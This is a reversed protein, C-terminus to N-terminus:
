PTKSGEVKKRFTDYFHIALGAYSPSKVFEKEAAEVQQVFEEYSQDAFTIKPLMLSTSVFGAYENGTEPDIIPRETAGDQWQIAGALAFEADMALSSEDLNKDTYAAAGFQKWIAFVAEQMRVEDEATPEPPLEIGVHYNHGDDLIQTRFGNIRSLYSFDEAQGKLAEEFVDHPIGVPFWVETPQYTFTEVGLYIEAKKAEDAYDLIRMGHAIMGDAGDAADRYNMIGVNDLLDICHFDVPKREGNYTVMGNVKGTVDDKLNWWFPIDIGFVMDSNERIRRQCEVNLDLFERLIQERREWDRWGILLYPENDYHVGSFREDPDVRKNYDIIADVIGLPIHHYEKQAYEPYGDLAEVRLGARNAKGLFARFEDEFRLTVKFDEPVEFGSPPGHSDPIEPHFETLVQMWIHKINNEKCFAILEDGKSPERLIPETYWLWMARPPPAVSAGADNKTLTVPTKANPDKKFCIDDVYIIYDTDPEVFDLTIGGLESLNVAAKSLPVLAEQWEQTVEGSELFDGIGGVTVSDEQAVWSADALKITFDEGGEEGKVWFSLHTYEGADLYVPEDARFDFLHMWVGCFGGPRQSARVKLSKGGKGRFIEDSLLTSASSPLSEYKNYFGDLRNQIGENFNAVLFVDESEIQCSSGSCGVFFATAALLPLWLVKLLFYTLSKM